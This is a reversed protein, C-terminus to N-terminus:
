ISNERVKTDFRRQPFKYDRLIIRLPILPTTERAQIFHINMNIINSHKDKCLQAVFTNIQRNTNEHSM